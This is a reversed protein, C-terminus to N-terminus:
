NRGRVSLRLPATSAGNSSKITVEGGSATWGFSEALVTVTNQQIVIDYVEQFQTPITLTGAVLTLTYTKWLGPTTEVEVM